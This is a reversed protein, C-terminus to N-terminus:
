DKAWETKISTRQDLEWHHLIDEIIEQEDLWIEIEEVLQQEQRPFPVGQCLHILEKQDKSSTIQINLLQLDKALLRHSMVKSPSLEITFHINQHELEFKM